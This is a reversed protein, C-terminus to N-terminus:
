LENLFIDKDEEADTICLYEKTQKPSAHNFYQALKSLEVGFAFHQHYGWTKRLTHSGFNGKLNVADCWKAVLRHVSPVILRGRQSRFLYDFDDYEASDLLSKISQTAIRNLTVGRSKGTKEDTVTLLQGVNVNRIQGVKIHVLETPTLNTNIGLTFLTSNRPSDKILAKIAKIDRIKRIPEVKQSGGQIDDNEDLEATM